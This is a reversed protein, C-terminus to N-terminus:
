QIRKVRVPRGTDSSLIYSGLSGRKVTVPAGVKPTRGTVAETSTWIAGDELVFTMKGYGVPDIRKITSEIQALAGEQAPDDDGGGFIASVSPLTLGFLGREAKEAQKRDIIVVERAKEATDISASAEDFCALRAASEPIARCAMLKQFVAPLPQSKKEAALAPSAVLCVGLVLSLKKPLKKGRM